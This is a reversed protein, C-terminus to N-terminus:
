RNTEMGVPFCAVLSFPKSSMEDPKDAVCEVMSITNPRVVTASRLYLQQEDAKQRPTLSSQQRYEDIAKSPTDKTFLINTGIEFTDTGTNLCLRLTKDRLLDNGIILHPVDLVYLNRKILGPKFFLSVKASHKIVTTADEKFGTM